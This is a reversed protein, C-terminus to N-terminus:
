RNGNKRAARSMVTVANGHARPDSGHQGPSCLTSLRLLLAISRRVPEPVLSPLDYFKGM